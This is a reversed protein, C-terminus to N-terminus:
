MDASSVFMYGHITYGISVPDSVGMAYMTRDEGLGILFM